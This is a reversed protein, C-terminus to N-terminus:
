KTQGQSSAKVVVELPALYQQWNDSARIVPRKRKPRARKPRFVDHINM